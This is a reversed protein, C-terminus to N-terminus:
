RDNWKASTVMETGLVKTTTVFVDEENAYHDKILRRVDRDDPFELDYRHKGDDDQLIMVGDVIDVLFYNVNTVIPLDVMEFMGFSKEEDRGDLIGTGKITVKGPDRYDYRSTTISTILCPNTDLVVYGGERCTGAERKETWAPDWSEM